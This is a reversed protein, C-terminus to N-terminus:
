KKLYLRTHREGYIVLVAESYIRGFRYPPPSRNNFCPKPFLVDFWPCDPRGTIYDSTKDYMVRGYTTYM